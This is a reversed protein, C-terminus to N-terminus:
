LKLYKGTYVIQNSIIEGELNVAYQSGKPIVFTAVYYPNNFSLPVIQNGFIIGKVKFFSDNVTVSKLTYQIKTYSHYAEEVCFIISNLISTRRIQISHIKYITNTKYIFGLVCSKCSQKSAELVVKYVEIDKDAIQMHINEQKEIWCM